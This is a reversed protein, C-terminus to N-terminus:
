RIEAKASTQPQVTKVTGEPLPSPKGEVLTTHAERIDERVDLPLPKGDKQDGVVLSITPVIPM